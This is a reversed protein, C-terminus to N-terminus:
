VIVELVKAVTEAVRKAAIEAEPTLGVDFEVIKPQVGLLKVEAGLSKQIFEALMYLPMAHTSIALGSIEDISFLRAEGAEAEFDAADVMLVHSPKVQKLKGTFLEPTERCEILKVNESVKGKLEEVIRLGVADDRRLPNGIGLIALKRCNKLWKKLAKELEM